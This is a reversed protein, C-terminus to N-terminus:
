VRQLWRCTDDDRELLYGLGELEAVLRRAEGEDIIRLADEQAPNDYVTGYREVLEAPLWEYFLVAPDPPYGGDAHAGIEDLDFSTSIRPESTDVFHELSDDRPNPPANIAAEFDAWVSSALARGVGAWYRADDRPLVVWEDGTWGWVLSANTDSEDPRAEFPM